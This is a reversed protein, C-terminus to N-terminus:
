TGLVHDCITKWRIEKWLNTRIISKVSERKGRWPADKSTHCVQRVARYRPGRPWTTERFLTKDGSAKVSFNRFQPLLHTAGHAIISCKLFQVKYISISCRVGSQTRLVHNKWNKRFLEQVRQRRLVRSESDLEEHSDAEKSVVSM